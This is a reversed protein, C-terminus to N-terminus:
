PMRVRSSVIKADDKMAYSKDIPGKNDVSLHKDRGAIREVILNKRDCIEISGAREGGPAVSSTVPAINSSDTSSRMVLDKIVPRAVINKDLIVRSATTDSVPGASSLPESRSDVQRITTGAHHNSIITVGKNGSHLVPASHVEAMVNKQVSNCSHGAVIHQPMRHSESPRMTIVIDKTAYTEKMTFQPIEKDRVPPADSALRGRISRPKTELLLTERLLTDPMLTSPDQTRVSSSPRSLSGQHSYVMTDQSAPDSYTSSLSAHPALASPNLQSFGAANEAPFRQSAQNVKYSHTTSATKYTESNSVPPIYADRESDIARTNIPMQFMGPLFHGMTDKKAVGARASAGVDDSKSVSTYDGRQVPATVVGRSKLLESAKSVLSRSVKTLKDATVYISARAERLGQLIPPNSFMKQRQDSKIRLEEVTPESARFMPHIGSQSNDSAALGIGRNVRVQDKVLGENRFATTQYRDSNFPDVDGSNNTRLAAVRESAHFMNTVEQKRQFPSRSQDADGTVADFQLQNVRHRKSSMNNYIADVEEKTIM